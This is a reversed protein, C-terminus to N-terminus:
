VAGERTARFELPSMGRHRRFAKALYNPDTFGAAKAIDRFTVGELGSKALLDIEYPIWGGEPGIAIVVGGAPAAQLTSLRHAGLPDLTM